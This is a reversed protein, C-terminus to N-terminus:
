YNDIMETIVKKEDESLQIMRKAHGPSFSWNTLRRIIM